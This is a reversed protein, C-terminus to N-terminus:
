VRSSGEGDDQLSDQSPGLLSLIVRALSEADVPKRLVEMRRATCHIAGPPLASLFIVPWHRGSTTALADYLSPGTGDSLHVDLLLIDPPAVTDMLRSAEAASVATRVRAGRMELTAAMAAAVTPEDDVLLIEADNLATISGDSEGPPTEDQSPALPVLLEFCSGRGETSQLRLELGLTDALRRVTALGLGSGAAVRRGTESQAFPAFIRDQSARAIGPGTDIVQIGLRDGRRRCGLLIRGRGTYRIANSLLNRLIRELLVRDTAVHLRSGRCRLELGHARALQRYEDALEYLLPEVAFTSPRTELTGADLRTLAQLGDLTDALSQYARRMKTLLAPIGEPPSKTAALELFLGLSQLPQRLDHNTASFLLERQQMLHQINAHAERIEEEMEFRASIDQVAGQYQLLGQSDVDIRQASEVLRLANRGAPNAADYEFASVAGEKRLAKLFDAHSAESAHWLRGSRACQAKLAPLDEVDLIRLLANNARLLEGDESALYLGVSANDFLTQYEALVENRAQARQLAMRNAVERSRVQGVAAVAFLLSVVSGQGFLLHNSLNPHISGLLNVVILGVSFLYTGWALAYIGAFPLKRRLQWLSAGVFLFLSAFSFVIIVNRGQPSGALELGFGVFALLPAWRFFRALKPADETLNLFTRAHAYGLVVTLSWAGLGIMGLTVPSAWPMAAYLVGGVWAAGVMEALILGTILLLSRQGQAWWLLLTFLAVALPVAVLIGSLMYGFRESRRFSDASRVVVPFRLLSLTQTRLLFAQSQGAPLTMAFAPNRAGGFWEKGSNRLNPLERWVGISDRQFLRVSDVFSQEHVVFWRQRDMDENRLNFRAWMASDSNGFHHHRSPMTHWQADSQAAVREVGMQGSPDEMVEINPWLWYADQGEQFRVEELAFTPQVTFM